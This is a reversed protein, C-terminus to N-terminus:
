QSTSPVTKGNTFMNSILVISVSAQKVLFAIPRIKLFCSIRQEDVDAAKELFFHQAGVSLIFSIPFSDRNHTRRVYHTTLRLFLFIMFHNLNYRHRWLIIM